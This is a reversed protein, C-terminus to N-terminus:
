DVKTRRNPFAPDALVVCGLNSHAVKTAPAEGESTQSTQQQKTFTPRREPQMTKTIDFVTKHYYFM